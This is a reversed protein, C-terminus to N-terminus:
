LLGFFLNDLKVAGIFIKGEGTGRSREGLFSPM